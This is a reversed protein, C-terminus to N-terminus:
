SSTISFHLRHQCFTQINWLPLFSQVREHIFSVCVCQLSSHVEGESGPFTPSLWHWGEGGTVWKDRWGDQQWPDPRRQTFIVRRKRQPLWGCVRTSQLYTVFEAALVWVDDPSSLRCFIFDASTQKQGYSRPVSDRCCPNCLVPSFLECNILEVLHPRTQM